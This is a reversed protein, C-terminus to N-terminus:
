ITFSGASPQWQVFTDLAIERCIWTTVQFKTKLRNESSKGLRQQRTEADAADILLPVFRTALGLRRIGIVNLL